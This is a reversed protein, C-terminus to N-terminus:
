TDSCHDERLVCLDSYNWTICITEPPYLRYCVTEMVTGQAYWNDCKWDETRIWGSGPLGTAPDQLDPLHISPELCHQKPEREGNVDAHAGSDPPEPHTCGLLASLLLTTLNRM